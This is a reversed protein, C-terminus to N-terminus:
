RVTHACTLAPWFPGINPMWAPAPPCIYGRSQFASTVASTTMQRGVCVAISYPNLQSLCGVYPSVVGWPSASCMERSELREMGLRRGTARQHLM